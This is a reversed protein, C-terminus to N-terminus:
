SVKDLKPSLQGCFPELFSCVARLVLMPHGWTPGETTHESAAHLPLRPPENGEAATGGRLGPEPNLILRKRIRLSHSLIILAELVKFTNFAKRVKM